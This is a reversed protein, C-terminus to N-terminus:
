YVGWSYAIAEISPKTLPENDLGGLAQTMQLSILCKMGFHPVQCVGVSKMRPM